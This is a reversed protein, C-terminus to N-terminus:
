TSRRASADAALLSLEIRQNCLELRRLQAHRLKILPALAHARPAAIGCRLSVDAGAAPKVWKSRHHSVALLLLQLHQGGFHLGHAGFSGHLGPRANGGYQRRCRLAGCLLVSCRPPKQVLGLLCACGLGLRPLASCQAARRKYRNVRIRSQPCLSSGCVSLTAALGGGAARRHVARRLVCSAPPPWIQRREQNTLRRLMAGRALNTIDFGDCLTMTRLTRAAARGRPARKRRFAGRFRAATTLPRVIGAACSNCAWNSYM